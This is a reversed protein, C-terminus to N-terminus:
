GSRDWPESELRRAKSFMRLPRSTSSSRELKEGSRQPPLRARTGPWSTRRHSKQRMPAPKTNNVSPRPREPSDLAASVSRPPPGVLPSHDCSPISARARWAESAYGCRFIQMPCGRAASSPPADVLALKRTCSEQREGRHHPSPSPQHELLTRTKRWKALTAAECSGRAFFDLSSVDAAGCGGGGYAGSSEGWVSIM